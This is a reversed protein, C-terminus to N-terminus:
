WAIAYNSFHHIEGGAYWTGEYKKAFVTDTGTASALYTLIALSDNVEAIRPSDLRRVQCNKYSTVLFATKQFVLGDPQFRVRNVTDSPAVATIQVPTSLALSDIWLLHPGVQLLGGTPGIVQTVSDYPLPTCSILGTKGTSPPKLRAALLAPTGLDVGVPSPDGCSVTVATAGALLALPILSRRAM